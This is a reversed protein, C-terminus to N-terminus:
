VTEAVVLLDAVIEFMVPTRFTLLVLLTGVDVETVIAEAIFVLMVLETVVDVPDNPKFPNTLGDVLRVPESSLSGTLRSQLNEFM